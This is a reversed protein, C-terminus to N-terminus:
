HGSEEPKTNSIIKELAKYKQYEQQKIDHCERFKKSVELYMEYSLATEAFCVKLSKPIIKLEEKKSLQESTYYIEEDKDNSYDKFLKKKEVSIKVLSSELFNPSISYFSNTLNKVCRNQFFHFIVIQRGEM